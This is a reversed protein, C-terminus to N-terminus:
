FGQTEQLGNGYKVPTGLQGLDISICARWVSVDKFLGHTIYAYQTATRVRGGLSTQQFAARDLGLSTPKPDKGTLCIEM